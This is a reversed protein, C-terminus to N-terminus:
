AAASRRGWRGPWRPWGAWPGSPGGGSSRPFVSSVIAISVPLMLAGGVGQAVRAALLMPFVPALGGIASASAFLM